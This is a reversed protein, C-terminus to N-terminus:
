EFTGGLFLFSLLCSLFLVWAIDATFPKLADVEQQYACALADLDPKFDICLAKAQAPKLFDAPAARLLNSRPAEFAARSRPQASSHPCLLVCVAPPGKHRKQQGDLRKCPRLGGLNASKTDLFPSRQVFSEPLRATGSCPPASSLTSSRIVPGLPAKSNPTSSCASSGPTSAKPCSSRFLM